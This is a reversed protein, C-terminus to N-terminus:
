GGASARERTIPITLERGGALYHLRSGPNLGELMTKNDSYLSHSFAGPRTQPIPGKRRMLSSGVVEWEVLSPPGSEVTRTLLVFQGAEADLLATEAVFACGLASALRVDRELRAIAVRSQILEVMRDGDRVGSRELGTWLALLAASLVLVLSIGVIVEVLSFGSEKGLLAWRSTSM